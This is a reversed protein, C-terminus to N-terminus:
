RRGFPPGGHVVTEAAALRDLLAAAREVAAGLRVWGSVGSEAVRRESLDGEAQAQLRWAMRKVLRGYGATM